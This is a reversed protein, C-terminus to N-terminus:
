DKVVSWIFIILGFIVCILIIVLINTWEPYTKFIGYLEIINYILSLFFPVAVVKVYGGSSFLILFVSCVASVIGFFPVIPHYSTLNFGIQYWHIIQIISPIFSSSGLIIGFILAEGKDISRKKKSM